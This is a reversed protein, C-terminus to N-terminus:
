RLLDTVSEVLLAAAVSVALAIVLGAAVAFGVLSGSAAVRRRVTPPRYTQGPRQDVRLYLPIPRRQGRRLQNWDIRSGLLAVALAAALGVAGARVTVDATSLAVILATM